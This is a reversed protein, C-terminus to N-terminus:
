GAEAIGTGFAPDEPALPENGLGGADVWDKISRISELLSYRPQFGLLHHAKSMDFYVVGGQAMSWPFGTEM